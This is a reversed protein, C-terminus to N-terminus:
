EYRSLEDIVEHVTAIYDGVDSGLPFEDEDLLLDEFDVGENGDLECYDDEPNDVGDMDADVETSQPPTAELLGYNKINFKTYRFNRFTSPTNAYQSGAQILDRAEMASTNNKRQPNYTQLGQAELYDRLTKIDNETSPSTHSSSNFPTQFEQQMKRIVDRLVFICVSVM